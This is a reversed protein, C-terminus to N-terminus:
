PMPAGRAAVLVAYWEERTLRLDAAQAAERLREVNQTGVLAIPKSPHTLVWALAVVSRSVGRQGAIRDLAEAVRWARPDQGPDVIRGGGLPSWALVALNHQQAQDLVGDNLAEFALASFEPQISALPFPMLAILAATQSPTYNSVGAEKIKGAARLKAFAAAIEAPHTLHDPRHIQYLDITDVRLRRLSAECAEVLYTASSNYPTPPIIGGKTALIIKDRLSPAEQLVRGFVAEAAGFGDGGYGYIDATDFLTMGSELAAEALARGVPVEGALRWMGWGLPGAELGGAGIRIKAMAGSWM